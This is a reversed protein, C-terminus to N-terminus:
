ADTEEPLQKIENRLMDKRQARIRKLAEIGLKIAARDDQHLQFYVDRHLVTLLNIAEDIAITM